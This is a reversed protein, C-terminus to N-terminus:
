VGDESWVEIGPCTLEAKAKDKTKRVMQGISIEDAIMYERPIMSEHTIRFKWNVRAKIGAVTPVAAKVVVTPFNAATEEAQKAALDKAAQADAAAQKKAKEEERKTIEGAKRAEALEKERAKRDAEAKAEAIRREEDAKRRAAIRNDENIRQQEFADKRREDWKWTEAKKEACVIIPTVRDIFTAMNRQLEQMHERASVIGPELVRKIARVENRGELVIECALAYSAADSVVIAEARQRLLSLKSEIPKMDVVLATDSM